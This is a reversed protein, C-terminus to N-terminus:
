SLQVGMNGRKWGSLDNYKMKSWNKTLMKVWLMQLACRIIYKKPFKTQAPGQEKFEHTM